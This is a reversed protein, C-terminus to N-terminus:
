KFEAIFSIYNGISYHYDIVLSNGPGGGIIHHQKTFDNGHKGLDVVFNALRPSPKVISTVEYETGLHEEFLPGIKEEMVLEM